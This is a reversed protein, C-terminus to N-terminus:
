HRSRRESKLWLLDRPLTGLVTLCAARFCLELPTEFCYSVKSLTILRVCPILMATLGVAASLSSKVATRFNPCLRLLSRSTDSSVAVAVGQACGM